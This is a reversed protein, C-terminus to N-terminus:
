THSGAGMAGGITAIWQGTGHPCSDHFHNIFRLEPLWRWNRLESTVADFISATTTASYQPYMPLVLIRRVGSDRLEELASRISPRGYRMGLAVPVKSGLRFEM